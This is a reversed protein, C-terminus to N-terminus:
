MNYLQERYAELQDRTMGTREELEGAAMVTVNASLSGDGAQTVTAATGLSPDFLRADVVGLFTQKMNPDFFVVEVTPVDPALLMVSIGTASQSTDIISSHGANTAFGIGGRIDGKVDIVIPVLQYSRRLERPVNALTLDRDAPPTELFTKSADVPAIDMFENVTAVAEDSETDAVRTLWDANAVTGFAEATKDLSPQILQGCAGLLDIHGDAGMRGVGRLVPRVQRTSVETHVVLIVPDPTDLLEKVTESEAGARAFPGVLVTKLSLDVDDGEPTGYRGEHTSLVETGEVQLVVYSSKARSVFAEPALKVATASVVASIPALVDIPSCNDAVDAPLPPLDFTAGAAPQNSPQVTAGGGCAAVLLTALGISISAARNTSSRGTM